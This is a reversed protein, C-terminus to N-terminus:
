GVLPLSYKWLMKSRDQHKETEQQLYPHGHEPILIKGEERKEEAVKETISCLDHVHYANLLWMWEIIDGNMHEASLKQTGPVPFTSPEPSIFIIIVYDGISLINM